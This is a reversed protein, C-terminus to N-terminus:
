NERQKTLMAFYFGDADQDGPLLQRGLPLQIGWEASITQIRADSQRALFQEIQRENEAPMISCTVYLLLGNEALTQWLGDLLRKQQQCFSDIDAPRRLVKIDPHRRIVGTGSCPADLLIRDFPQRNWWKDVAAADEALLEASFGLRDLNSQVDKLRRSSNDMAVLEIDPCTELLHGTKGGPASCADLVRLGPQLQLLPACLQAAEDQVSCNGEFFGPLANVAVPQALKIATACMTGAQADIGAEGLMDIYADRAYKQRNVRLCMPPYQNATAAIQDFKEPWAQQWEAIMWQPLSTKFEVNSSLRYELQEKQRLYNRLIANTLGRAWSKGLGTVAEVTQDLAAHDPIRTFSLQYLGVLLLARVDADQPKLKKQLLQGLILNLRPFQRLTGYCLEAYLGQDEPNDMKALQLSGRHNLVPALTQAAKARM